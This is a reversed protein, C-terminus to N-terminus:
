QVIRRLETQIDMFRNHRNSLFRFIRDLDHPKEEWSDPIFSRLTDLEARDVTGAWRAFCDIFAVGHGKLSPYACHERTNSEPLLPSEDVQRESWKQMPLACSHDILTFEDGGDWLLNPNDVRRDGNIVTADFALV